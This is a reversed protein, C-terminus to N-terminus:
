IVKGISNAILFSSLAVMEKGGAIPRTKKKHKVLVSNMYHWTQRTSPWLVDTLNSIDAVNTFFFLTDCTRHICTIYFACLHCAHRIELRSVHHEKVLPGLADIGCLLVQLLITRCQVSVADTDFKHLQVFDVINNFCHMALIPKAADGM